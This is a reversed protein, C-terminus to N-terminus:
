PSNSITKASEVWETGNYGTTRFKVSNVYPLGVMTLTFSTRFFAEDLPPIEDYLESLLVVMENEEIYIDTILERFEVDFPWVPSLSVNVPGDFFHRLAANIRELSDAQPIQRLEAVLQGQSASFFYVPLWGQAYDDPGRGFILFLVIGLVLVASVASSVITIKKKGSM